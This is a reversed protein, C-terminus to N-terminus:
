RGAAVIRLGNPGFNYEQSTGNTLRVLCLGTEVNASLILGPVDQMTDMRVIKYRARESEADVATLKIPLM